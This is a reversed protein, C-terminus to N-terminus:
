RTTAAHVTWTGDRNPNFGGGGPGVDDGTGEKAVQGDYGVFASHRAGGCEADPRNDDQATATTALSLLVILDSSDTLAGPYDSSSM